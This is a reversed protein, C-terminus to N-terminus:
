CFEMRSIRNIKYIRDFIRASTNVSVTAFSGPHFAASSPWSEGVSSFRSATPPRLKRNTSRRAPVVMRWSVPGQSTRGDGANLGSPPSTAALQRPITVSHATAEPSSRRRRPSYLRNSAPTTDNLGSPRNRTADAPGPMPHMSRARPTRVESWVAWLVRAFFLYLLALLAYALTSAVGFRPLFETVLLGVKAGKGVTFPGKRSFVALAKDGEERYYAVAKGLLDRAAQEDAAYRSSAAAPPPNEAAVAVVPLALVGLLAGVRFLDSM